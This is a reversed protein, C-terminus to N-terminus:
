AHGSRDPRWAPHLRELQRLRHRRRRRQSARDLLIPIFPLIAAVALSLAAGVVLEAGPAWDPRQLTVGSLIQETLQAHAEVGPTSPNLPTAVIDSLLTASAGVFV